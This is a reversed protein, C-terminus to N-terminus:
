SDKLELDDLSATRDYVEGDLLATGPNGIGLFELIFRRRPSAGPAQGKRARVTFRYTPQGDSDEPAATQLELATTMLEGRRWAETQGDDEYLTFSSTPPGPFIKVSLEEGEPRGARRSPVVAGERLLVPPMLYGSVKGPRRIESGTEQIIVENAFFDYWRGAPVYVRATELDAVGGGGSGAGILMWPGLMFELSRSRAGPDDQFSYLLPAALPDGSEAIQHALSYLYPELSSKFEVLQRAWPEDIFADPLLLPLNLLINRAGWGEYMTRFPGDAAWRALYQTVDTTYYDIGSLASQSRAQGGVRSSGLSPEQTYVGAGHRGMGGMGARVMLFSRAPAGGFFQPRQGTALRFGEMWKLSYRNAWAYHSHSHPDSVGSYWGLPSATEPEGGRFFFIRAGKEYSAARDLSHWYTAAAPDSYDVLASPRGEFNVIAPDGEEWGNRVLFGRRRMDTFAPSSSAVYPSEPAMLQGDARAAEDFPLQSAEVPFLGGVLPVSPFRSKWGKLLTVADRGPAGSTDVIWPAFVSRPPVPPRGVLGMFARRVEPLSDGSIVFFALSRDPSLPGALSVTWPSASLDWVLPRTENLFIASTEGEPGLFYCVPIQLSGLPGFESAQLRPGHPGSPMFTKGLLNVGEALPNLQAGLGAAFTYGEGHFVVGALSGDPSYPSIVFIERDPDDERTIRVEPSGNRETVPFPRTRAEGVLRQPDNLMPSIMLSEAPSELIRDGAEEFIQFYWLGPGLRDQTLTYPGFNQASPLARLGTPWLVYLACLAALLAAASPRLRSSRCYDRRANGDCPLDPFSGASTPDALGGEGPGCVFRGAPELGAPRSSAVSLRISSTM